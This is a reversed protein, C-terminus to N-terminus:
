GHCHGKMYLCDTLFAICLTNISKGIIELREPM